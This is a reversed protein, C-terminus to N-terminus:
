KYPDIESGNKEAGPQGWIKVPASFLADSNKGIKPFITTELASVSYVTCAPNTGTPVLRTCNLCTSFLLAFHAPVLIGTHIGIM